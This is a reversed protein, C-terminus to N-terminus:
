SARDKKQVTVIRLLNGCYLYIIMLHVVCALHIMHLPPSPFCKTGMGCPMCHQRGNFTMKTQLMDLLQNSLYKVTLIKHDNVAMKNEMLLDNKNSVETCKTKTLLYIPKLSFVYPDTHPLYLTVTCWCQADWICDMIFWSFM